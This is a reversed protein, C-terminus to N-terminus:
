TTDLILGDASNGRVISIAWPGIYWGRLISYEEGNRQVTEFDDDGRLRQGIDLHLYGPIHTRFDAESTVVHARRPKTFSTNLAFIFRTRPTREDLGARILEGALSHIVPHCDAADVPLFSADKLWTNGGRLNTPGMTWWILRKIYSWKNQRRQTGERTEGEGSEMLWADWDDNPRSM